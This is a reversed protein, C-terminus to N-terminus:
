ARARVMRATAILGSILLLGGIPVLYIGLGSAGDDLVAGGLLFGAPILLGAWTLCKSAIRLPSDSPTDLGRLTAAFAVHVLSLIAGHAHGLTWLERRTEFAANLYWPAKSAHLWELWIGLALFGLLSWWGLLLHHRELSRTM